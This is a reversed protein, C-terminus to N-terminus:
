AAPVKFGTNQHLLACLIILVFSSFFREAAAIKKEKIKKVATCPVVGYLKYNKM